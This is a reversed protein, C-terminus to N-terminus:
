GLAKAQTFASRACCSVLGGLTAVELMLLALLCASTGAGAPYAESCQSQM